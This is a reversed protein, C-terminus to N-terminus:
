SSAAAQAPREIVKVQVSHERPPGEFPPGRRITLRFDQHWARAVEAPQGALPGLAFRLYAGIDLTGAQYDAYFRDNQAGFEAADVLGRECLFEGWLHDSDGGLLTNDLDFIALAM